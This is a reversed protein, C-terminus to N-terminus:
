IRMKQVSSALAKANLKAFQLFLVLICAPLFLVNVGQQLFCHFGGPSLVARRVNQASFYYIFICLVFFKNYAVIFDEVVSDERREM